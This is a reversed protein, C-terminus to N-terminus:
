KKNYKDQLKANKQNSWLIFILVIFAIAVLIIVLIVNSDLEFMTTSEEPNEPEFPVEYSIGLDLEYLDSFDYVYNSPYEDTFFPNESHIRLGVRVQGSVSSQIELLNIALEWIRHPIESNLSSGFGVGVVSGTGGMGSTGGPSLHFAKALYSEGPYVSFLVDVNKTIKEDLDVDFSLWFYDRSSNKLESFDDFVDQTVDLLVYLNTQDNQFMLFGHDFGVISANDWEGLVVLGDIEPANDTLFSLGDVGTCCSNDVLFVFFIVCLFVIGLFKSKQKIKKDGM